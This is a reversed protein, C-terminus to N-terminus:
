AQTDVLSGLTDDVAQAVKANADIQQQGQKMDTVNKVLAQVGEVPRDVSTEEVQKTSKQIDESTPPLAASASQMVSGVTSGINM